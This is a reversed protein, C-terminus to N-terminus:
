KKKTIPMGDQLLGVGETVIEDGIALGTTVIYDQGGDVREVSVQTSHTKGDVVKYVFVKDQVEYTAARPIIIGDKYVSPFVVNGSSGSHLLGNKNPFAARVSVTGTSADVVGSITAITGKEEYTTRDNLVLEIAPMSQLAKDKSGYQRILGLLQNETMSFYVYMDSNDSVTTLPQAMGASVLTGVRYPLTGIVGDSPSKVETYSLDNAASLEQAKAQAFLEKKSDYTLQATALTADAAEMNARATALAAQYPVQDIIFLVQGRKVAQGENVCLRTITGTVQPFIAIDQKGQIAAPYQTSLTKNVPAVQMTAYEPVSQSYEGGNKCGALTLLITLMFIQWMKNTEMKM